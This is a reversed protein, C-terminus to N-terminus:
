NFTIDDVKRDPQLHEPLQPERDILDAFLHDIQETGQMIQSLATMAQSIQAANEPSLVERASGLFNLIWTGVPQEGVLIMDVIEQRGDAECLAHTGRMELVQMPIGM